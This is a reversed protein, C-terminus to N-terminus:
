MKTKRLYAQAMELREVYKPSEIRGLFLNCGDCLIGRVQNTKHDHDIHISRPNEKFPTLCMACKQEQQERMEHYKEKSLNYLKFKMVQNYKKYRRIYEDKGIKKEYDRTRKIMKLRHREYFKKWRQRTADRHTKRYDSYQNKQCPRCVTQLGDKAM